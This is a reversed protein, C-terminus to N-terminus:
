AGATLVLETCPRQLVWRYKGQWHRFLRDSAWAQGAAATCTGSRSGPRSYLTRTCAQMLQQAPKQDSTVSSRARTADGPARAVRQLHAVPCCCGRAHPLVRWCRVVAVRAGPVPTPVGACPSRHAPSHRHLLNQALLRRRSCTAVEPCVKKIGCRQQAGTYIQGSGRRGGDNHLAECSM